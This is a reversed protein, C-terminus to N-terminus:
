KSDVAPGLAASDGPWLACGITNAGRILVPPLRRMPRPPSTLMWTPSRLRLLCYSGLERRDARGGAGRAGRLSRPGSLGVPRVCDGRGGCGDRRIRVVWLSLLLKPSHAATMPTRVSGAGGVQHLALRWLTRRTRPRM